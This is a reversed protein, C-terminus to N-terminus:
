RPMDLLAVEVDPTYTGNSALKVRQKAKSSYFKIHATSGATWMETLLRRDGTVHFVAKGTKAPAFNDDKQVMVLGFRSSGKIQVVNGASQRIDYLGAAYHQNGCDFAFPVNVRAIVDPNEARAAPVLSVAALLTALLSARYTSLLKM